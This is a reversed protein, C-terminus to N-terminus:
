IGELFIGVGNHRSGVGAHIDVEDGHAALGPIIFAPFGDKVAQRYIFHNLHYTEATPLSHCDVADAFGHGRILVARGTNGTLQDHAIHFRHAEGILFHESSGPIRIDTKVEAAEDPFVSQSHIDLAPISRTGTSM